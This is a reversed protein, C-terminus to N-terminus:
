QQVMQLQTMARETNDAAIGKFIDLQPSTCLCCCLLVCCASCRLLYMNKFAKWIYMGYVLAMKNMRVSQWIGYEKEECELEEGKQALEEQSRMDPKSVETHDLGVKNKSSSQLEM